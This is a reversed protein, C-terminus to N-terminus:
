NQGMFGAMSAMIEQAAKATDARADSDKRLEKPTYSTLKEEIELRMAELDPDDSTNLAPLLDCLDEINGVLTDRFIAKKDSLREAMAKVVGHLRSWLEKQASKVREAVQADLSARVAELEREEIQLLLHGGSPVPNMEVTVQFKERIDDPDPYDSEKYLGNLGLVAEQVLVGYRATLTDAASDFVATLERVKQSFDFYLRSSLLYQGTVDSWPTTVKYFYAKLATAAKSVDSLADKPILQKNFRGAQETAGFRQTTDQSAEKDFKRASWQSIKISVLMAESHISM